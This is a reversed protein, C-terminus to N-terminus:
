ATLDAPLPLANVISNLVREVNGGAEEASFRSALQVGKEGMERRLQPDDLLRLITGAFADANRPLSFGAGSQQIEEAYNLTNSVLVPIRCAMAEFVAFGFNEAESPFVFVDSDAMAELRQAPGVPGTVIASTDLHNERIWRRVKEEYAPPDPPGVIALLADPRLAVVRATVELLLDIGKKANLRALFLLVPGTHGRLYRARFSGRQPLEAFDEVPFGLPVVVSPATIGLGDVEEREGRATFFIVSARKLIRRAILRDYIWKRRTSIRRQVPALVGHLWMVYPKHQLRAVLYGLFVPFSYLSHLAIVDASAALQWVDRFEAVLRPSFAWTDWAPYSVLGFYGKGHARHIAEQISRAFFQDRGPLPPGSMLVVIQHGRAATGGLSIPLGLIGLGGKRSLAGEVFNVMKM